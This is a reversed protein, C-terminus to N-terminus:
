FTIANAHTQRNFFCLLLIAQFMTSQVDLSPTADMGNFMLYVRLFIYVSIERM